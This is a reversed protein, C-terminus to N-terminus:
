LAKQVRGPLACLGDYIGPAMRAIQYGSLSHEQISAQLYPSPLQLGVVLVVSMVLLGRFLGALLGGAQSLRDQFNVEVLNGFFLQIRTVAVYVGVVLIALALASAWEISLFSSRAVVDGWGQYVRFGVFFGATLGVLKILEAALGLRFGIYGARILLTVALVDVWNFQYIPAETM